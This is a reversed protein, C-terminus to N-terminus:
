EDNGEIYIRSAGLHSPATDKGPRVVFTAGTRAIAAGGALPIGAGARATPAWAAAREIGRRDMAVGVRGLLEPWLLGWETAGVGVLPAAAIVLAGDPMRTPTLVRDVFQAVEARFASAREGLAWCWASFGPQARELAPLIELRVRNRQHTLRANSPDEVFAVGRARAYADVVARRVSLLPRAPPAPLAPDADWADPTSSPPAIRMGALGRVGSGRLLRLVVTEVQDDWTHATVITAKLEEAWGRLFRWRATRWAAEGQAAGAPLAGSVVPLEAALASREVLRAARTAAAGTGHDFTAVAAVEAGRVAAVADLLVMSDRGGSVAILWRGAPLEDLSGHITAVAESQTSM